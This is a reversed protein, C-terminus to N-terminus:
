WVIDFMISIITVIALHKQCSIAIRVRAHHHHPQVLLQLTPLTSPHIAVTDLFLLWPLFYDMFSITPNKAFDEIEKVKV